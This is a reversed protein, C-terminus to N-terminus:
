DSQTGTERVAESSRWLAQLVGWCYDKEKARVTSGSVRKPDVEGLQPPYLSSRVFKQSRINVSHIGWGAHCVLCSDLRLNAGGGPNEFLDNRSAWSKYRREDLGIARMVADGRMLKLPQIEFEAFAQTRHRYDNRPDEPDVRMYARLQVSITLPSAVMDGTDSILLAQEVLAFQTGAPFQPTEPNIYLGIESGASPIWAELGREQKVTSWPERFKMLKEIYALTEKRDGPLRMFVRFVSRWRKADTHREALVLQRHNGLCVWPGSEDGLDRPFFPKLYDDPDYDEPFVGSRGTEGLTDPLEAIQAESLALRKILEALKRQLQYQALREEEPMSIPPNRTLEANWDFLSWLHRQLLAREVGFYAGIEEDSLASFQDLAKIFRSHTDGEILYRSNKWVLPDIAERGVTEPVTVQNEIVKQWARYESADRIMISDYLSEFVGAADEARTGRVTVLLLLILLIRKIM